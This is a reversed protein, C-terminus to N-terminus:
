GQKIPTRQRGDEDQYESGASSSLLLLANTFLDADLDDGLSEVAKSGIDPACSGDRQEWM